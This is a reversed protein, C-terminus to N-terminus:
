PPPTYLRSLPTNPVSPEPSPRRKKIDERPTRPRRRGPAEGERLLIQQAAEEAEANNEWGEFVVREAKWRYGAKQRAFVLFSEVPWRVGEWQGCARITIQTFRVPFVLCTVYHCFEALYPRRRGGDPASPGTGADNEEEDIDPGPTPGRCPAPNYGLVAAHLRRGLEAEHEGWACAPRPGEDEGLTYTVTAARALVDRYHTRLTKSTLGLPHAVLAELTCPAPLALIIIQAWLEPPLMAPM